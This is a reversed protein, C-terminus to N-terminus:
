PGARARLADALAPPAHVFRKTSARSRLRRALELSVPGLCLVLPLWFCSPSSSGGTAIQLGEAEFGLGFLIDVHQAGADDVRRLDHTDRQLFAADTASVGFFFSAGAMGPPPMPPM